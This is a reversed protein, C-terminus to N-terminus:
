FYFIVGASSSALPVKHMVGTSISEAKRGCIFVSRFICLPFPLCGPLAVVPVQLGGEGTVQTTRSASRRM